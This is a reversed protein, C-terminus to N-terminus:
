KKKKIVYSVIFGVFVVLVIVVAWVWVSSSVKATIGEKTEENVPTTGATPTTGAAASTCSQTLAPETGAYCYSKVKSCTRTQVNNSCSTWDSCTWNTFCGGGGSSSTAVPTTTTTATYAGFSTFHYTWIIL